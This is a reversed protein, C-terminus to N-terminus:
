RPHDTGKIGKQTLNADPLNDNAPRIETAPLYLIRGDAFLYNRAGEWTWWGADSDIPRHVSLWEGILIKGAPNALDSTRQKVPPQPNSYCDAKDTMADIQAPSHYFAMSYAYSTSEYKERSAKDVPCFLVSPNNPDAYDAIYPQVLSRWGRGMWLWYFPSTAVPDQAAPYVQDWADTYMHFALHIQRLNAACRLRQARARAAALAPALIALLAAIIAIVVLLEILTFANSTNRIACQTNHRPPSPYRGVVTVPASPEATRPGSGESQEPRCYPITPIQTRPRGQRM